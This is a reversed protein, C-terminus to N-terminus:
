GGVLLPRTMVQAYSLQNSQAVLNGIHAVVVIIVPCHYVCSPLSSSCWCVISCLVFGMFRLMKNNDRIYLGRAFLRNWWLLGVGGGGRRQGILFNDLQDRQLLLEKDHDHVEPVIVRTLWAVCQPFKKLREEKECM